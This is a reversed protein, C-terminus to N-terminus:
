SAISLSSLRPSIKTTTPKNGLSEHQFRFALPVAVDELNKEWASLVKWFGEIPESPVHTFPTAKSGQVLVQEPLMRESASCSGAPRVASRSAGTGTTSPASPSSSWARSTGRCSVLDWAGFLRRRGWNRTRLGIWSACRCPHVDFFGNIYVAFLEAWVSPWVLQGVTVSGLLDGPPRLKLRLPRPDISRAMWCENSAGAMFLTLCFLHSM